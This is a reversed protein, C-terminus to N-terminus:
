RAPTPTVADTGIMAVLKATALDATPIDLTVKGNADTHGQIEGADCVGNSNSDVCVLADKILGDMVTTSVPTTAPSGVGSGGGSGCATLTVVAATILGSTFHSTSIKM